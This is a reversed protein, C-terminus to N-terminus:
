RESRLSEKALWRMFNKSAADIISACKDLESKRLDMNSDVIKELEDINYLYVNDIGNVDEEVDRPVALDIIFLPRQGRKPMISSIKDKQIIHHPAGTSTIVIDVDILKKWFEEFSVVGASFRSALDQAKELTRNAVFISRIGSKKLNLALQEGV